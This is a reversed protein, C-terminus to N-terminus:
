RGTVIMGGSSYYKSKKNMMDKKSKLRSPKGPKTMQRMKERAAKEAAKSKYMM